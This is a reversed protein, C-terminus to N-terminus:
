SRKLDSNGQKEFVVRRIASFRSSATQRLYAADLIQLMERIGADDAMNKVKQLADDRLSGVVDGLLSNHRDLVKNGNAGNQNAPAAAGEVRCVWQWLPPSISKILASLKFRWDSFSAGLPV